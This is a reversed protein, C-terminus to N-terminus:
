QRAVSIPLTDCISSYIGSLLRQIIENKMWGYPGSVDRVYDVSAMATGAKAGSQTPPHIPPPPKLAPSILIRRSSCGYLVQLYPSM